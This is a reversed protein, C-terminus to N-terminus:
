LGCYCRCEMSAGITSQPQLSIPTAQLQRVMVVPSDAMAECLEAEEALWCLRLSESVCSVYFDKASLLDTVCADAAAHHQLPPSYVTGPM